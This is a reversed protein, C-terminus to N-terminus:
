GRPADQIAIVSWRVPTTEVGLWERAYRGDSSVVVTEGVGAGVSDVAVLPDGDPTQGDSMLPQIVLLKQREMSAHKVTSIAVGVVRAALM